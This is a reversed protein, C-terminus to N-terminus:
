KAAQRRRASPSATRKLQLITYSTQQYQFRSVAVFGLRDYIRLARNNFGAVTVRLAEPAFREYAFDRIASVFDFGFGAGTLDPRLGLGLDLAEAQYDGGPLQGDPGFSAYGILGTETTISHFQWEPAILNEIIGATLLPPNYFDYPPPYRWLLIEQAESRSLPTFAMKTRTNM